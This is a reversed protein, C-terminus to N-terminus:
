TLKAAMGVMLKTKYIKSNKYNVSTTVAQQKQSYNTDYLQHVSNVETHLILRYSQSSTSLVWNM